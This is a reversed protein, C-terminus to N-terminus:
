CNYWWLQSCYILSVNHAIMHTLKGITVSSFLGTLFRLVLFGGLNPVLASAMLFLLSIGYSVVYIPRRGFYESLPALTMPGLAFGIVTLSLGLTSVETSVGMDEGFKTSAPSFGSAGWSVSLDILIIPFIISWKKWAPWNRPDSPDSPSFTVIDMDTGDSRKRSGLSIDHLQGNSTSAM